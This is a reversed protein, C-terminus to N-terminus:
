EPSCTRDIDALIEATPDRDEEDVRTTFAWWIRLVSDLVKSPDPPMGVRGADVAQDIVAFVALQLQSLEVGCALRRGSAELMAQYAADYHVGYRELERRLQRAIERSTRDGGDAVALALCWVRMTSDVAEDGVPVFQWADALMAEALVALGEGQRLRRAAALWQEGNGRHMEDAHDMVREVAALLLRARDLRESGANAAFARRVKAASLGTAQALERDTLFRLLEDGSAQGLRAVVADAIVDVASRDRDVM